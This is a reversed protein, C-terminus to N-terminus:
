LRVKKLYESKDLGALCQCVIFIATSVCLDFVFFAEIKSGYKTFNLTVLFCLGGLIASLHSAVKIRNLTPNTHNVRLVLGKKINESAMETIIKYDDACIDGEYFLSHDSIRIFVDRQERLLVFLEQALFRKRGIKHQCMKQLQYFEQACKVGLFVSVHLTHEELQKQDTCKQSKKDESIILNFFDKIIKGQLELPLKDIYNEQSRRLVIPEEIDDCLASSMLSLTPLDMAHSYSAFFIIAIYRLTKM